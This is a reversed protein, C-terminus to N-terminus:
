PYRRMSFTSATAATLNERPVICMDSVVHHFPDAPLFRKLALTIEQVRQKNAPCARVYM